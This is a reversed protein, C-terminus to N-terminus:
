RAFVPSAILTKGKSAYRGQLGRSTTPSVTSCSIHVFSRDSNKILEESVTTLVDDNPLISFIADCSSAIDKLSAATIGEGVLSQVAAPNVDYILLRKGDNRFNQVM